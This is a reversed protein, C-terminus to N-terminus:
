FHGDMAAPLMILTFILFMIAVAIIPLVFGLVAVKISRHVLGAVIPMALIVVRLIHTRTTPSDWIDYMLM